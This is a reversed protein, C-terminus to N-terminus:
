TVTWIANCFYRKSDFFCKKVAFGAAKAIEEMDQVSYKYSVETHIAEWAKFSFTKDLLGIYVNQNKKSVLYSEACGNQPHYIPAHEFQEVDFDAKLEENMRRLLNYNFEATVGQCDNYADLIMKPQKKLDFGICFLDGENM